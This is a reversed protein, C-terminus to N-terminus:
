EAEVIVAEDEMEGGEDESDDSEQGLEAEIEEDAEEPADVSEAEETIPKSKASFLPLLALVSAIPTVFFEARLQLTRRTGDAFIVDILPVGSVGTHLGVLKGPGFKVHHIAFSKPKARNRKTALPPKRVPDLVTFQSRKM